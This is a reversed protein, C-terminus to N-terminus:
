RRVAQRAVEAVRSRAEEVGAAMFGKGSQGHTWKWTGDSAPFAWGSEGKGTGNVVYGGEGMAQVDKAHGSPTGIGTGFEVFAAHESAAVVRATGDGDSEAAISSSLSGTDVPCAARATEAATQALSEAIAPCAGEIRDAYDLIAEQLGGLCDVSLTATLTTM